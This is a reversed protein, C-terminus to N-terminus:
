LLFPQNCWVLNCIEGRYRVARYGIGSLCSDGCSTGTGVHVFNGRHSVSEALQSTHAAAALGVSPPFDSLCSGVSQPSLSPVLLDFELGDDDICTDLSFAVALLRRGIRDRGCLCLFNNFSCSFLSFASHSASFPIGILASFVGITFPWISLLLCLPVRLLLLVLCMIVSFNFIVPVLAFPKDVFFFAQRM